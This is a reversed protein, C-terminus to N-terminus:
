CIFCLLNTNVIREQDFLLMEIETEYNLVM